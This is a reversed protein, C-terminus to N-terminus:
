PLVEEEVLRRAESLAVTAIVLCDLLVSAQQEYGGHLHGCHPCICPRNQRAPASGPEADNDPRLAELLATLHHPNLHTITLSFSCPVTRSHGITGGGPPTTTPAAHQPDDGTSQTQKAQPVSDSQQRPSKRSLSM